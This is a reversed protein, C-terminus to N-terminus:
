LGFVYVRGACGFAFHVRILSAIMVGPAGSLTSPDPTWFLREFSFYMPDRWYDAAASGPLILSDGLTFWGARLLHDSATSDPHSVSPDVTTLDIAVFIVQNGGVLGLVQDGATTTDLYVTM